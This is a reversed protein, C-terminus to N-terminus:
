MLWGMLLVPGAPLAEVGFRSRPPTLITGLRHPLADPISPTQGLWARTKAPHIASRLDNLEPKFIILGASEKYPTRIPRLEVHLM